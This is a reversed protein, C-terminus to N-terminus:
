LPIPQSHLGLLLLSTCQCCRATERIFIPFTSSHDQFNNGMVIESNVSPLCHLPANNTQSFPTSPLSPLSTPYQYPNCSPPPSVIFPTDCVSSSMNSVDNIMIPSLPQEDQYPQFTNLCLNPSRQQFPPTTHSFPTHNINYPAMSTPWSATSSSLTSALTTVLERHLPIPQIPLSRTHPVKTLQEREGAVM